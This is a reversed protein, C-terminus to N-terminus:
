PSPPSCGRVSSSTPRVKLTVRSRMRWISFWDSLFSCDSASACFSRSTAYGTGAARGASLATRRPGIHLAHEVHLRSQTLQHAALAGIQMQLEVAGAERQLLPERERVADPRDVRVVATFHADEDHIEPLFGHRQGAAVPDRLEHDRGDRARDELLRRVEDVGRAPPRHTRCCPPSTLRMSTLKRPEPEDPFQATTRAPPTARTSAPREIFSIPRRRAKRPADRSAIEAIKRVCSCASWM